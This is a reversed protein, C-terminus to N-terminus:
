FLRGRVSMLLFGSFAPNTPSLSKDVRSKMEHFVARYAQYFDWSPNPNYHLDKLEFSQIVGKVTTPKVFVDRQPHFYTQCVTMPTWRALKGHKLVDLITQFGVQERGHLLEAL